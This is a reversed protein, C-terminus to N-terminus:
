LKARKVIEMEVLDKDRGFRLRSLEVIEEAINPCKPIKMIEEWPISVSFPKSPMGKILLRLYLNGVSNNILDYEGFVPTFQEKLYKADDVGVRFAGLSGVNGFVAERIPGEIQSIYQNAV